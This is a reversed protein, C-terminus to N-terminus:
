DSRAIPTPYSNTGIERDGVGGKETLAPIGIETKEV